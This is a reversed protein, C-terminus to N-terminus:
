KKNGKGLQVNYKSVISKILKARDNKVSIRSCEEATARLGDYLMESYYRHSKRMIDICSELEESSLLGERIASALVGIAGITNIGRTEAYNRADKDDVFDGVGMEFPPKVKVGGPYKGPEAM